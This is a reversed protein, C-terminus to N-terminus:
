PGLYDSSFGNEKTNDDITSLNDATSLYVVFRGNGSIEPLYIADDASAGGGSIRSVMTTRKLQRDRVFADDHHADPFAILNAASSRFAVYRGSSSISPASSGGNAGAGGASKSQRSVLEVHRHGRDYVFVGFPSIPSLNSAISFFAVFRGSASISPDNSDNNGGPGGGSERSVLDTRKLKLDRVYVDRSSSPNTPGGLNTAATDFAVFRGSGSISAHDSDGNAGKGKGSRRSALITRRHDLDRVYINAVSKAPGGLDTADSEFVVSGGDASIDPDHSDDDGASGVKGRRSVLQVRHKQRDYVYVDQSSGTDKPSLNTGQSTFAVFRGDASISVDASVSSAVDGGAAKSQRSVLQVKGTTRDYVYAQSYGNALPSLNAGNSSFAVFRGSSSAAVDFTDGTAADGSSNVSILTTDGKVASAPVVFAAAALAGGLVVLIGWRKM